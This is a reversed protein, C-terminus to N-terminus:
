FNIVVSAYIFQGSSKGVIQNVHAPDPWDEGLTHKFPHTDRIQKFKDNLFLLIDQDANYRNDLSLLHLNTSVDCSQFKQQLHSEARSGFFAIIPLDRTSLFDAILRVLDTQNRHGKCEDVGDLLLVIVGLPSKRHLRRLPDFILYRLQTELSKTFILPDSEIKPVVIELLDPLQQILQYLLTPVLSQVTNRRSDTRFFFFSAIPINRELCLAVISRAIASKGAGAAGNMWLMWQIRTVTQLIWDMIENQVAQRTNPHCKPADVEDASDFAA